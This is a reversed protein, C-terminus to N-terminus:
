KGITTDQVADKLSDGFAIVIEGTYTETQMDFVSEIDYPEGEKLLSRQIADRKVLDYVEDQSYTIKM